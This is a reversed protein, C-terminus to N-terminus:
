KSTREHTTRVNGAPSVVTTQSGEGKGVFTAVLRDDEDYLYRITSQAGDDPSTPDKGTLVEEDDDFGDGDSDRTMPDLGYRNIKTGDSIGSNGSDWKFPNTHYRFIELSDSLGDADSDVDGRQAFLFYSSPNGTEVLSEVFPLDPEIAGLFTLSDELLSQKGFIQVPFNRKAFTQFRLFEDNGKSYISTIAFVSPQKAAATLLGQQYAAYQEARVLSIGIRIRERRREWYWTTRVDGSLWRPPTGYVAEAWKGAVDSTFPCIHVVNGGAKIELTGNTQIVHVSWVPVNGVLHFDADALSQAIESSSFALAPLSLDVSDQGPPIRLITNGTQSLFHDIVQELENWTTLGDAAQSVVAYSVILVLTRIKLKM